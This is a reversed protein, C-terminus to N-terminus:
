RPLTRHLRKRPRGPLVVACAEHSQRPPPRALSTEADQATLTKRQQTRRWVLTSLAALGLGPELGQRPFCCHVRPGFGLSTGVFV